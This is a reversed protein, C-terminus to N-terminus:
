CDNLEKGSEKPIESTIVRILEALIKDFYRVALQITLQAQRLSYGLALILEINRARLFVLNRRIQGPVPVRPAQVAKVMEDLM